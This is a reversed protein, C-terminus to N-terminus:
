FRLYETDEQVLVLSICQLHGNKDWIDVSFIAKAQQRCLFNTEYEILEILFEGFSGSHLCAFENPTDLSVLVLGYECCKSAV